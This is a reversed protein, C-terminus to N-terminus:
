RSGASEEALYAPPVEDTLWVGNDSRYFSHGDGHMAGARVCLVVPRGYRQGVRIATERDASLHVHHRRGKVLGQVRISPLNREATGHYLIEPPEAPVYGLAVEVSHGQSARIRRGDESVAYRRKDDTAVVHELEERTLRMGSRALAALLLDIEVWGAPDLALGIKDPRHRLVLSLFKSIRTAHKENM